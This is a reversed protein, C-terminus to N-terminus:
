LQDITSLEDQLRSHEAEFIGVHEATPLRDLRAFPEPLPGTDPQAPESAAEPAGLPGGPAASPQAPREAAPGTGWPGPVPRSPSPETM